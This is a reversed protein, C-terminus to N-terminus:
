KELKKIKKLRRVHRLAKSFPTSLFIQIMKKAKNLHAFWGSLCIINANDNDKALRAEKLSYPIVARAGKIKNAALCVGQASGCVLIGLSKNKVVAKAVKAAYDPYDDKPDLVQNGLDVYPIKKKELWKKLKEKLKFGNHDSGIYIKKM